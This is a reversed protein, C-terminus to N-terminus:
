SGGPRRRRAGRAVPAGPPSCGPSCRDAGATRWRVGAVVVLSWGRGGPLRRTCCGRAGTASACPWRASAPSRTPRSTASTTSRGAARVVPVRRRVRRGRWRRCSARRRRLDHRRHRRPRLVRVRVGRRPRPLRVAEPRRHLGVGALSRWRARRALLWWAPRRDALVLGAVAAVGFAVLAARKVAAPAALGGAVLRVPGVRVEDTGRVGDSYDNAYNVGVQLALSVVLALRAGGGCRRPRRRRRVGRRAGGARGRRAAHAAPRRAGLPQVDAAPATMAARRLSTTRCHSRRRSSVSGAHEAPRARGAPRRVREDVRQPPHPVAAIGRQREVAPQRRRGRGASSSSHAATPADVRVAVCCARRRRGTSRRRRAPRRWWRSSRAHGLADDEGVVGHAGAGDAVM